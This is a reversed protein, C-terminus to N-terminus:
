FGASHPFLDLFYPNLQKRPQPAMLSTISYESSWLNFRLQQSVEFKVHKIQSYKLFRLYFRM